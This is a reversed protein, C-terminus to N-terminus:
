CKIILFLLFLRCFYLSIAPRLSEVVASWGKAGLSLSMFFVSLGVLFVYLCTSRCVLFLVSFWVM